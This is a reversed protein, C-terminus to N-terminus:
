QWWHYGKFYSVQVETCTAAPSYHNVKFGENTLAREMEKREAMTAWQIYVMSKRGYTENGMSPHNITRFKEGWCSIELSTSPTEEGGFEIPRLTSLTNILNTLTKM